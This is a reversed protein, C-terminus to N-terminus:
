PTEHRAPQLLTRTRAFDHLPDLVDVDAGAVAALPKAVRSADGVVVLVAPVDLVPAWDAPLGIPDAAVVAKRLDEADLERAWALEDLWGGESGDGRQDNAGLPPARLVLRRADALDATSPSSTAVRRVIERVAAVTPAPDREGTHLEIVLPVVGRPVEHLLRARVNPPVRPDRRLALELLPAALVLSPYAPSSRPLGTFVLHVTTVEAGPRDVLTLRTDDPAFPPTLGAPEASPGRLRGFANDLQKAVDPPTAGSLLVVVDDPGFARRLFAQTEPLTLGAIEAPSAAWSGFPHLSVPLQFVRRFVLQRAVFADDSRALLGLRGAERARVRAFVAANLTRQALTKELLALAFSFSAKPVEITLRARELEVEVDFSGGM